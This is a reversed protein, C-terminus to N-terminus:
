AGGWVPIDDVSVREIDTIFEPLDIFGGGDECNKMTLQYYYPATLDDHWRVIGDEDVYSERGVDKLTEVNVFATCWGYSEYYEGGYMIPEFACVAINSNGVLTHISHLQGYVVYDWDQMTLCTNLTRGEDVLKESVSQHTPEEAASKAIVTNETSAGSCASLALVFIMLIALVGFFNRKM